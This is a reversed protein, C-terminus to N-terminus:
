IVVVVFVTVSKIDLSNNFSNIGNRSNYQTNGLIQSLINHDYLTHTMVSLSPFEAGLKIL